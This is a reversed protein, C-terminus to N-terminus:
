PIQDDHAMKFVSSVIGEVFNNNFNSFTVPKHKAERISITLQLLNKLFYEFM